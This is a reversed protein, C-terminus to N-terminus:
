KAWGSPLGKARYLEVGWLRAGTLDADTLDAGTLSASELSAGDLNAGDLNAGTFNARMLNAGEFDLRVGGPEGRLWASHAAIASAIAETTPKTQTTM